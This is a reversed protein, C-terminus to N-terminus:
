VSFNNFKLLDLKSRKGNYYEKLAKIDSQNLIARYKGLDFFLDDEAIDPLKNMLLCDVIEIIHRTIYFNSVDDYSYDKNELVGVLYSYIVTDFPLSVDDHFENIYKQLADIGLLGSKIQKRCDELVKDFIECGRTHRDEVIEVLAAYIDSEVFENWHPLRLINNKSLLNDYLQEILHCFKKYLFYCPIIILDNKFLKCASTAATCYVHYKELHYLIREKYQEFTQTMTPPKKEDNLEKEFKELMSTKDAVSSYMKINSPEPRMSTKGLITSSNLTNSSPNEHITESRKFLRKQDAPDNETIVTSKLSQMSKKMDEDEVEEIMELDFNKGPTLKKDPAKSKRGFNSRLHTSLDVQSVLPDSTFFISQAQWSDPNVKLEDKLESERVIFQSKKQVSFIRHSRLTAWDARKAPDLALTKILFDLTDSSVKQFKPDLLFGNGSCVYKFYEQPTSGPWPMTGFLLQYFILGICWLDSKYDAVKHLFLEPALSLLLKNSPQLSADDFKEMNRVLGVDFLKIINNDSLLFSDLRLSKAVISAKLLSDYADMIQELLSIAVPEPFFNKQKLEKELLGLSCHEYILYFHKSTAIIQQVHIISRSPNQRLTKVEDQIISELNQISACAQRDISRVVVPVNTKVDLGWHLTYYKDIYFIEQLQISEIQKKM